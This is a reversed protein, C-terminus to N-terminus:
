GAAKASRMAWFAFTATVLFAVGSAWVPVTVQAVQIPWQLITRTLQILAMLGFFMGSVQVYRQM